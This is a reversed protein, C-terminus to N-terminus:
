GALSSDGFACDEARSDIIQARKGGGGRRGM